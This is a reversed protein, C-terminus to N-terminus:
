LLHAHALKEDILLHPLLYLQNDMSPKKKLFHFVYHHLIGVLKAVCYKHLIIFEVMMRTMRIQIKLKTTMDIWGGYMDM